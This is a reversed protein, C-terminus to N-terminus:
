LDRVQNYFRMSWTDYDEVIVFAVLIYRKGSTIGHGGHLVGSAHSCVEGQDIKVADQLSQFWTGGGEFDDAPNLAINFSLVSGDRHPKLESQGGNVDYKVIFGDVVRLSRGNPLFQQFQKRLLPYVRTHLTERLFEMTDPLEVIPIDTTPYNGHRKTSWGGERVECIREAEDVIQQCEASTFVPKTTRHCLYGGQYPIMSEYDMGSKYSSEILGREAIVDEDIIFPLKTQKYQPIHLESVMHCVHISKEKQISTFTAKIWAISNLFLLITAIKM